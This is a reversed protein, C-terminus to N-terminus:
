FYFYSFPPFIIILFCGRDRCAYESKVV